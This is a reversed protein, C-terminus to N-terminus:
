RRRAAATVAGLLLLALAQPEPIIVFNSTGSALDSASMTFTFQANMSSAPAIPTLPVNANASTSGGTVSLGPLLEAFVTSGNYVAQYSNGSALNGALTAGDGLVDTLTLAASTAAQAPSILPFSLLGSSITFSTPVVGSAVSFALAVNPDASYLLNATRLQGIFEGGPGLLDVMGVLQWTWQQSVPDYNLEDSSVEYVGTGAESTAEVRLVIPSIDAPAVAAAAWVVLAAAAGWRVIGALRIM